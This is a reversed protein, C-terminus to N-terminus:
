LRGPATPMLDVAVSITVDQDATISVDKKIFPAFGSKSIVLRYMGSKPLAFFRGSSGSASAGVLVDTAQDYWRIIVNSLPLQTVANRVIGHTERASGSGRWRAIILVVFLGILLLYRLQWSHLALGISFLLGVAYLPWTSVASFQQVVQWVKLRTLQGAGAFTVLGIFGVATVLGALVLLVVATISLRGRWGTLGGGTAAV